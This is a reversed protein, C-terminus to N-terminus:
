KALRAVGGGFMGWYIATDDGAIVSYVNPQDVRTLSVTRRM